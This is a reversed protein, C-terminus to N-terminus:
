AQGDRHPLVPLTKKGEQYIGTNRDCVTCHTVDGSGPDGLSKHNEESDTEVRSGPTPYCLSMDRM